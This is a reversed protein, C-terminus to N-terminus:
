DVVEMFKPFRKFNPKFFNVPSEQASKKRELKNEIQLLKDASPAYVESRFIQPVIRLHTTGEIACIFREKASYRARSIILQGQILTTNEPRAFVSYFEPQVIDESLYKDIVRSDNVVLGKPQATLAKLAETYPLDKM